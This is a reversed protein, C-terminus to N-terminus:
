DVAPAPMGMAAWDEKAPGYVGPVKLGAQRMLVTMQGRHHIENELMYWVRNLNPQPFEGFFPDKEVATLREVTVQPWWQRIKERSAHCAELLAAKTTLEGLQPYVWTGTAIGSM